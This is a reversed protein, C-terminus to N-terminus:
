ENNRRGGNRNFLAGRSLSRWLNVMKENTEVDFEVTFFDYECKKCVRRRFVENEKEEHRTDCVKTAGGCKPCTM